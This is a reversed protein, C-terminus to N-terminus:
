ERYMDLVTAVIQAELRAIDKDVIDSEVVLHNYIAETKALDVDSLKNLSNYYKANNCRKKMDSVRKHLTRQQYRQSMLKKAMDKLDFM